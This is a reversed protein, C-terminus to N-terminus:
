VVKAMSHFTPRGVTCFECPFNLRCRVLGELHTWGVLVQAAIGADGKDASYGVDRCELPQARLQLQPAGAIHETRLRHCLLTIQSDVVLLCPKGLAVNKHSTGGQKPSGLGPGENARKAESLYMTCAKGHTFSCMQPNETSTAEDAYSVSFTKM